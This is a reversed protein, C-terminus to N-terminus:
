YHQKEDYCLGLELICLSKCCKKPNKKSQCKYIFTEGEDFVIKKEVCMADCNADSRCDYDYQCQQCTHLKEHCILNGECDGDDICQFCEDKFVFPCQKAFIYLLFSLLLILKM